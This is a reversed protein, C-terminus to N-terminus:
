PDPATPSSGQILNKHQQFNEKRDTLHRSELSKTTSQLWSAFFPLRRQWKHLRQLCDDLEKPGSQRSPDQPEYARSTDIRWEIQFLGTFTYELTLLWHGLILPYLPATISEPESNGMAGRALGSTMAQSIFTESFSKSFTPVLQRKEHISPQSDLSGYGNWLLHGETISPNLLLIGIFDESLWSM